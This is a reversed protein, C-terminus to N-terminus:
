NLKNKKNIYEQCSKYFYFFDYKKKFFRFKRFFFYYKVKVTMIVNSKQPFYQGKEHIKRAQKKPPNNKKVTDCKKIYKQVLKPPVTQGLKELRM